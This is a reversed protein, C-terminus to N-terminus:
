LLVASEQPLLYGFRHRMSSIVASCIEPAIVSLYPFGQSKLGSESPNWSSSFTGKGNIYLSRSLKSLRVLLAAKKKSVSRSFSRSFDRSFLLFYFM